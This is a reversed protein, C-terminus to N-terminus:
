VLIPGFDSLILFFIVLGVPVHIEQDTSTSFQVQNVLARGEFQKPLAVNFTRELYAYELSFRTALTILAAILLLLATLISRSQKTYNKKFFVHLRMILIAGVVTFVVLMVSFVVAITMTLALCTPKTPDFAEAFVLGVNFVSVGTAVIEYIVRNIRARKTYDRRTIIGGFFNVRHIILLWEYIGLSVSVSFFVVSLYYFIRLYFVPM